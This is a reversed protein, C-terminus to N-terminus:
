ALKQLQFTQELRVQDCVGFVPKRMTLSMKLLIHINQTYSRVYHVQQNNHLSETNQSFTISGPDPLLYRLAM